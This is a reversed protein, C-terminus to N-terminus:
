YQLVFSVPIFGTGSKVGGTTPDMAGPIYHFRMEAFGNVNGMWLKYQGGFNFGVKTSQTSCSACVSSAHYLGIGVITFLGTLGPNRHIVDV